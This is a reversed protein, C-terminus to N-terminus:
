RGMANQWQGKDALESVTGLWYQLESGTVKRYQEGSRFAADRTNHVYLDKIGLAKAVRLIYSHTDDHQIYGLEKELKSLGNYVTRLVKTIAAAQEVERLGSVDYEVHVGWITGADKQRDMTDGVWASIRFGEYRGTSASNSWTWQATHLEGDSQPLVVSARVYRMGYSEEAQVLLATTIKTAAM